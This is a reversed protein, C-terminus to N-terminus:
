GEEVTRNLSHGTPRQGAFNLPNYIWTFPQRQAAQAALYHRSRLILQHAVQCATSAPLRDVLSELLHDAQVRWWTPSPAHHIHLRAPMALWRQAAASTDSESSDVLAHIELKAPVDAEIKRMFRLFANWKVRSCGLAATVLELAALMLLMGQGLCTREQSDGPTPPEPNAFSECSTPTDRDPAIAIVISRLPPELYLGVLAADQEAWPRGNRLPPPTDRPHHGADRWIRSVTAASLGFELGARRTSWKVAESPALAVTRKLLTDVREDPISRPAGPRPLDVLGELGYAVFRRRWKSVTQESVALREAVAKNDMGEACLLVIRARLAQAGSRNRSRMWAELMKLQTDGLVIPAKPRGRM